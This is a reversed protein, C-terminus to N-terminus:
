GWLKAMWGLVMVEVRRQATLARPRSACPMEALRMELWERRAPPAHNVINIRTTVWTRYRMCFWDVLDVPYLSCGKLFFLSSVDCAVLFEIFLICIFCVTCFSTTM